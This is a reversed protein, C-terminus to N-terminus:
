ADGRERDASARHGHAVAESGLLEPRTRGCRQYIEDPVLAPDKYMTWSCTQRDEGDHEGAYTPPEVVRLPYGFRDIPWHESVVQCHNCYVCVGAKGDTWAHAGEIVKFGFPPERRSPADDLPEGRMSRGGSGCPDFRVVWRDDHEELVLPQGDRNPTSLYSSMSELALMLLAPLISEGWPARDVDFRGYRTDFLPRLVREWIDPVVEEGHREVLENLLGSCWDVDRDSHTRWLERCVAVAEHAQEWDGRQVLTVLDATAALLGKWRGEVDFPRSDPTALLELLRRDLSEVDGPDAGREVLMAHLDARWQAMTDRHFRAEDIAQTVLACADDADRRDIARRIADWTSRALTAWDGVRARRGLLESHGVSRSM